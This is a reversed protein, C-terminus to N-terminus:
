PSGGDGESTPVFIVGPPPAGYFFGADVYPVPLPIVELKGSANPALQHCLNCSGNPAPEQMQFRQNAFQVAVHVAGTLSESTYFNGSANTRLTLSKPPTASDIVLVEADKLGADSLATPSSFVTGALTWQRGSAAGGAVHCRMCDQGPDMEPVGNLGSIDECGLGCLLAVALGSLQRIM